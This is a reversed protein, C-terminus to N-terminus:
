VGTGVHESENERRVRRSTFDRRVNRRRALAPISFVQEHQGPRL